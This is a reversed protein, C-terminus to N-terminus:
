VPYATELRRTEMNVWMVIKVGGSDGIVKVRPGQTALRKGSGYADLIAREIDADSWDAPFLTKSTGVRKGGETHGSVIHDLDIDAASIAPLNIAKPRVPRNRGQNAM